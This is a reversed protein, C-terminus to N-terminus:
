RSGLRDVLAQLSDRPLKARAILWGDPQPITLETLGHAPEDTLRPTRNPPLHVLELTDGSSLLQLVRVGGPAGDADLRTVSLVFLGPVALSGSSEQRAVIAGDERAVAKAAPRAAAIGAAQSSTQAAGRLASTDAASLRVFEPSLINPVSDTRPLSRLVAKAGTDVGTVNEALVAAPIKATVAGSDRRPPAAAVPSASEQSVKREAADGAIVPTAPRRLTEVKRDELSTEANRQGAGAGAPPEAGGMAQGVTRSRDADAPMKGASEDSAVEPQRTASPAPTETEAAKRPTPEGATEPSSVSPEAAANSARPGVSWEGRLMWGTGLAVVVSAAWALRQIRRGSRVRTERAVAVSRLEELTPLRVDPAAASLIRGAAERIHREEELRRRCVECGDLHSRVREAEADGLEDLAGDLWAHLDGDTVHSM